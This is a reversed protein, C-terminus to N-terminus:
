YLIIEKDNLTYHVKETASLAELIDRVSQDNKLMMLLNLEFAM